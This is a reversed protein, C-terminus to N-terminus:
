WPITGTNGGGGTTTEGVEVEVEARVTVECTATKKGDDTTVTIVATGPAVATILGNDVTAVAANDSTYAVSEMVAGENPVATLQLTEGPQLIAADSNLEIELLPVYVSVDCTAKVDGCAATIVCSGVGV